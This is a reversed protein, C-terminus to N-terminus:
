GESKEGEVELGLVEKAKEKIMKFTEPDETKLKELQDKEGLALFRTLANICKGQREVDLEGCVDEVMERAVFDSVVKEKEETM